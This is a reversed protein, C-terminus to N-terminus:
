KDLKLNVKGRVLIVKGLTEDDDKDWDCFGVILIDDAVGFLSPMGKFFEDIKKQFADEM